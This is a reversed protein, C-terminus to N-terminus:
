NLMDLTTSRVARLKRMFKLKIKSLIYLEKELRYM